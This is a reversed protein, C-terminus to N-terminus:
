LFRYTGLSKGCGRCGSVVSGTVIYHASKRVM